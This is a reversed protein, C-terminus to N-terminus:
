YLNSLIISCVKRLGFHSFDKDLLDNTGALLIIDLKADSYKAVYKKCQSMSGMLNDGRKTLKVSQIDSVKM